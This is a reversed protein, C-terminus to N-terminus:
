SQDRRAERKESIRLMIRKVADVDCSDIAKDIKKENRRRRWANFTKRIGPLVDLVKNIIELSTKITGM